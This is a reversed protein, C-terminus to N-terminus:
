PVLKVGVRLDFELFNPKATATREEGIAVRLSLKSEELIDKSMLLQGRGAALSSELVIEKRLM